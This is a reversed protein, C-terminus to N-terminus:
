KGFYKSYKKRAKEQNASTLKNFMTRLRTEDYYPNGEEHHKIATELDKLNEQLVKSIEERIIQQLESKKM